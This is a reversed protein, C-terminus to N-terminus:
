KVGEPFVIADGLVRQAFDYARMTVNGAIFLSAEATDKTQDVAPRDFCQRLEDLLLRLAFMESEEAESTTFEALNAEAEEGENLIVWMSNAPCFVHYQTIGGRSDADGFYSTVESIRCLAGAPTYRPLDKEDRDVQPKRLTVLDGKKYTTM